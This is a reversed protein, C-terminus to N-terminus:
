YLEYGTNVRGEYTLSYKACLLEEVRMRAVLFFAAFFNHAEYFSTTPPAYLIVRSLWSNGNFQIKLAM